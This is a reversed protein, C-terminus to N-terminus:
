KLMCIIQFIILIVNISSFDNIKKDVSKMGECCKADDFREITDLTKGKSVLPKELQCIDTVSQSTSIPLILSAQWNYFICYYYISVIDDNNMTYITFIRREEESDRNVKKAEKATEFCTRLIIMKYFAPLTLRFTYEQFCM